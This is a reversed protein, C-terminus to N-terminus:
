KIPKAPLPQYHTVLETSDLYQGYGHWIKREHDYMCAYVLVGYEAIIKNGEHINKSMANLKINLFIM